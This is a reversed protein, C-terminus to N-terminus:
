LLILKSNDKSSKSGLGRHFMDPFKQRNNETATSSTTYLHWLVPHLIYIIGTVM